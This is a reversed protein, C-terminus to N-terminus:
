YRVRVRYTIKAEGNAAVAVKFIATQADKKEFEQSKQIIQWDGPLPEVIDLVVDTEKHNRVTIEYASETVRDSIQQFDTQVREGIVDFANGMKLSIDEDKPTHEIRDEGAFQLTKESDEQYIRMVGAPIPIGLRNAEDNRFELCVDVHQETLPPQPGSYFHEQGRFEYKKACKVGEATLLALQKSENQKITTRRPITYLHYEAFAEQKPMGAGAYGVADLEMYAQLVEVNQEQVVNVEGAVLKLKANTYTAGSQNNMTVWGEIDLSKEDQALTVVYDAQWSVGNTLYTVEVNQAAQSNNLLWILSPKAILNEPIQPLVVNGPHGLFIEEGVKYIPGENNSLLQAEKETFGVETSFNVLKVNKGVYKETLKAPSMLDYEYNQELIAISGPEALSRLSVTEPRIQAAVDMFRLHIEGQPLNLKRADRVLALGNNYATVAVDVQDALSTDATPVEGGASFIAGCLLVFTLIGFRM